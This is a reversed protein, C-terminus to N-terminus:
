DDSGGGLDRGGAHRCIGRKSNEIFGAMELVPSGPPFEAKMRAVAESVNLGGRYLLKFGRRIDAREAPGFGGRRLGVVNIGAVINGAAGHTMCFPPVDKSLGSGGSLMALRGIRVFQHIMVNGSIFAGDGVQAYGGLLAGNAAIAQRGLKVNHALHSNAMLFCGDGVETATGPKTGRHITVGERIVCGAGIRVFSECESFATDQPTDGIVAHAHIVTCDGIATHRMVVAHPGVVVGGGLRAGEEIVAYPGIRAGAGIEAGPSVLATEHIETQQKM